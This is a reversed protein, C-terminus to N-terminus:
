SRSRSRRALAAEPQVCPAPEAEAGGHARQRRRLTQEGPAVVCSLLLLRDRLPERGLLELAADTREPLGARAEEPM